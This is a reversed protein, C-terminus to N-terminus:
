KFKAQAKKVFSMDVAQKYPIPKDVATPVWVKM